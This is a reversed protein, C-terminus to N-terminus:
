VRMKAAFLLVATIFSSGENVVEGLLFWETAFKIVNKLVFWTLFVVLATAFVLIGLAARVELLVVTLGFLVIEATVWVSLDVTFSLAPGLILWAACSILLVTWVM